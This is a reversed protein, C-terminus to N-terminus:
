ARAASTAASASSKVQSRVVRATSTWYIAGIILIINRLSRGWVAAVVIMLPVDPISIFYDTLRM